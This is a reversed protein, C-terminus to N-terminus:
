FEFMNGHDYGLNFLAPLCSSKVMPPPGCVFVASSISPPYLAAILLEESIRGFSYKWNPVESPHTRTLTYWVRFQLPNAKSLEDLEERLLIDDETKNSYLLKIVPKTEKHALIARVLQIIPTIGSGGAILSLYECEITKEHISFCGNGEYLIQGTPGKIM